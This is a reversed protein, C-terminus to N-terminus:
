PQAIRKREAAADFESLCLGMAYHDDSIIILFRLPEVLALGVEIHACDGDWSPPQM